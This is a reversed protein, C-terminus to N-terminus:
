TPSAWMATATKPTRRASTRTPSRRTPGERWASSNKKRKKKSKLQQIREVTEADDDAATERFGENKAPNFGGDQCYPAEKYEDEENLQGDGVLGATWPIM